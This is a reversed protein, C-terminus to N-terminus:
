SCLDASQCRTQVLSSPNMEGDEAVADRRSGAILKAVAFDREKSRQPHLLLQTARLYTSNMQHSALTLGENLDLESAWVKDGIRKGRLDMPIFDPIEEGAAYVPLQSISLATVV